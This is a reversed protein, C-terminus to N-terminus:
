HELTSDLPISIREGNTLQFSATGDSCITVREVLALWEDDCYRANTMGRKEQMM